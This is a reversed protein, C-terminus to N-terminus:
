NQNKFKFNYGEVSVTLVRGKEISEMKEGLMQYVISQDPLQNIANFENDDIYFEHKYIEKGIEKESEKALKIYKILVENQTM